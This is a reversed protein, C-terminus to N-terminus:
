KLRTSKRDKTPEGIAIDAATFGKDAPIKAFNEGKRAREALEPAAAEDPLIIQSLRRTESPGYVAKNATYFRQIEAGTPAVAAGLADYTIPAYRVVRREPVMYRRSNLDSSCVDSSWDSIRM